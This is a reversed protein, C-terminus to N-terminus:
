IIRDIQTETHSAQGLKTMTAPSVRSWYPMAAFLVSGSLYLASGLFSPDALLSRWLSRSRQFMKFIIHFHSIDIHLHLHIFIYM